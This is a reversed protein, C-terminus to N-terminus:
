LRGNSQQICYQGNIQVIIKWRQRSKKRSSNNKTHQTWFIVKAMPIWQLVYKEKDFFNAALKEFNGTPINCFDAIYKVVHPLMEIKIEIKDPALPYNNHM